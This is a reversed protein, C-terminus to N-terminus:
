GLQTFYEGVVLRDAANGTFPVAVLIVAAITLVIPKRIM